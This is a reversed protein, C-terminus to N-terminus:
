KKAEKWAAPGTFGPLLKRYAFKDNARCWVIHFTHWLEEDAGIAAPVLVGGVVGKGEEGDAYVLVENSALSRDLPCLENPVSAVWRGGQWREYEGNEARRYIEGPHGGSLFFEGPKPRWAPAEPKAEKTSDIPQNNMEMEFAHADSARIAEEIKKAEPTAEPIYCEPCPGTAHPYSLLTAWKGVGGPGRALVRGKGGAPWCLDFNPLAHCKWAVGEPPDIVPEAVSETHVAVTASPPDSAPPSAQGQRAAWDKVARLGGPNRWLHSAAELIMRAVERRDDNNM